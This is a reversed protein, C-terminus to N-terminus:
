SARTEEEPRDELAKRKVDIFIKVACGALVLLTVLRFRQDDLTLWSLLGLMALGGLALWLRIM